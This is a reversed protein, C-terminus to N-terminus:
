PNLDWKIASSATPSAFPGHRCICLNLVHVPLFESGPAQFGARDGQWFSLLVWHLTCPLFLGPSLASLGRGLEPERHVVSTIGSTTQYSWNDYFRPSATEMSKLESRYFPFATVWESQQLPNNYLCFFIIPPLSAALMLRSELTGAEEAWSKRLSLLEMWNTVETEELRWPGEQLTCQVPLHKRETPVWQSARSISNGGECQLMNRDFM